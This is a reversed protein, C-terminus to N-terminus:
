CIGLSAPLAPHVRRCSASLSTPTPSVAATMFGGKPFGGQLSPVQGSPQQAVVLVSYINKKKKLCFVAYSIQSHSSNLRTSKRDRPHNPHDQVHSREEDIPPDTFEEAVM